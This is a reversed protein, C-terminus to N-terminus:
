PAGWRSCGTATPAWWRIARTPPVRAGTSAVGSVVNREGPDLPLTLSLAAPDNITAVGLFLNPVAAHQAMLTAYWASSSLRRHRRRGPADPGTGVASDDGGNRRAARGVLRDRSGSALRPAGAWPLTQGGARCKGFPDIGRDPSSCGYRERQLLATARGRTTAAWAAGVRDHLGDPSARRRPPPAGQSSSGFLRHPQRRTRADAAAADDRPVHAGPEGFHAVYMKRGAAGGPGGPGGLRPQRRPLGHRRRWLVLRAGADSRVGVHRLAAASRTM